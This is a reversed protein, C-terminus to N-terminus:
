KPFFVAKLIRAEVLKSVETTVAESREKAIVRKKQWVPFTRPHINLKHEALERPIGTMDAPTWAFVDKSSCLLEHLQKKLMKPLSAAIAVSQDPYASNIVVHETDEISDTEEPRDRKRSIHNCINLQSKEGRVIAIGKETQFKMLAHLTSAVAGFQMLGLRGLIINYPSPARVIMFKIMVTKSVDDRYDYLTIPLTILGLPWSIEGEDVYIRHVQTTGIDASIILPDEGTCHEPIPDDKSFTINPFSFRSRKACADVVRIMHIENKTKADTDAKRNWETQQDRTDKTGASQNGQTNNHIKAGIALHAMRGKRICAEIEKRLDICNNTDHGHDEHFECYRTRDRKSAPAFMKPPPQLM